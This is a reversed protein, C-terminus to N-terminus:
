NRYLVESQAREFWGIVARHHPEGYIRRFERTSADSEDRLAALRGAIYAPTLAIKCKQTICLRWNEYSTPITEIAIM